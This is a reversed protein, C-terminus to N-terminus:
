PEIIIYYYLKKVDLKEKLQQSAFLFGHGSKYSTIIGYCNEYTYADLITPEGIFNKNTFVYIKYGQRYKSRAEVWKVNKLYLDM